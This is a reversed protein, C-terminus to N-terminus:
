SVGKRRQSQWWRPTTERMILVQVMIFSLRRVQDEAELRKENWVKRWKATLIIKSFSFPSVFM